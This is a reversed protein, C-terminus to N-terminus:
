PWGHVEAKQDWFQGSAIGSCTEIGSWLYVQPICSMLQPALMLSYVYLIPLLQM